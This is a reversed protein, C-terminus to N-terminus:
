HSAGRVADIVRFPGAGHSGALLVLEDRGDDDIDTALVADPWDNGTGPVSIAKWSTGTGDNRLLLDRGNSGDPGSVVYLDTDGDGDVDAPAVLAADKVARDLIRVYRTGNWRSAVLRGPALLDTEGIPRLGSRRVVDEFVGTGDNRYLHLAKGNGGERDLAVLLDIDGDRDLDAPRPISEGFSSTLRSSISWHFSAQGDNLLLRNIVPAGDMREENAVYLDLDGDGDADFAALQRGRATPDTLGRETGQDRTTEATPDLYLENSTLGFGGQGGTVCAIDGLADADFRGAVCTHRDAAIVGVPTFAVYRSGERLYIAIPGAHRPWVLDLDGDGDM